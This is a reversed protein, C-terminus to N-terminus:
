IAAPVTGLPKGRAATTRIASASLLCRMEALTHLGALDLALTQWVGTRPRDLALPLQASPARIVSGTDRERCLYLTRLHELAFARTTPNDEPLAVTQSWRTWFDRTENVLGAFRTSRAENIIDTCDQYTDDLGILVTASLQGAISE